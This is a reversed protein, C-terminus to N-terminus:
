MLILILVLTISWFFDSWLTWQRPLLEEKLSPLHGTRGIDWKAKPLFGFLVM